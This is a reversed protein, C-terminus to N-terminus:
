DQKEIVTSYFQECNASLTDNDSYELMPKGSDKIYKIIEPDIDQSGLIVGDSYDIALKTINEWTPDSIREM